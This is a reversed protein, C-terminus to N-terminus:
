YLTLDNEYTAISVKRSGSCVGDFDLFRTISFRFLPGMVLFGILSGGM